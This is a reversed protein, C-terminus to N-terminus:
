DKKALNKRGMSIKEGRYRESINFVVLTGGRVKRIHLPEKIGYKPCKKGEALKKLEQISIGHKQADKKMQEEVSLKKEKEGDKTKFLSM